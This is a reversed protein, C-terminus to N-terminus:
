GHAQEPLKVALHESLRAIDEPKMHLGLKSRRWIIDDTTRAWENAVLYDVERGSLGGGHDNGLDELSRADGIVADIRTGYARALRLATAAPLFPWRTRVNALFADFDGKSLDGGPLPRTSTWPLALASLFPALKELAQEALRRYTTIKGGFISLLPLGGETDLSLVYDRTVESVNDSGDDYLSRIGSYSHIVDAPTIPRALYRNVGACLYAIEAEDIDPAAPDGTWPIDTTGILTFDQEYPIAFLIRGDPNQFIFAHDGEFRRPVIIHSGKVLRPPRAEAQGDIARLVAGVWPGAANVIAKARVLTERGSQRDLLTAVWRARDRRAAILRTRTRIDAGHDAADVANLVVLRADDVWCDSYVFGRRIDPDLGRGYPSGPLRVGFSAPLRQRGGLHDYLFLGLRIMWAPRMGSRHPLVFALPRIIHPAIALLREREILSERVLRFEYQELYRLGGHVLKTSASSTHSALDDQEVLLVSLGRGAADRAIGAGNIGGGIVLLDIADGAETM